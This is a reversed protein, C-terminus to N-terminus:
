SMHVYKLWPDSSPLPPNTCSPTLIAKFQGQNMNQKTVVYVGTDENGVSVGNRGRWALLGLGDHQPGAEVHSSTGATTGTLEPSKLLRSIPV